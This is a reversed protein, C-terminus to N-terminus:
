LKSDFISEIRNKSLYAEIDQESFRLSRGVKYFTIKRQGVLRYMGANSISLIEAVQPLTLLPKKNLEM